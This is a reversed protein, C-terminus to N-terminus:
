VAQAVASTPQGRLAGMLARLGEVLAPTPADAGLRDLAAVTAADVIGGAFTIRADGAAAVLREARALDFGGMTGETEVFTM